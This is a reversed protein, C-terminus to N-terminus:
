ANRSEQNADPRNDAPQGAASSLQPGKREIRASPSSPATSLAASVRSLTESSRALLVEVAQHARESPTAETSTAPHTLRNAVEDFCWETRPRASYATSGDILPLTILLRGNARVQAAGKVPAALSRNKIMMRRHHRAVKDAIDFNQIREM